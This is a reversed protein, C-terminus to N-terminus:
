MLQFGVKARKHMPGLDLPEELHAVTRHSSAIPIRQALLPFGDVLFFYLYYSEYEGLRMDSLEPSILLTKAYIDLL